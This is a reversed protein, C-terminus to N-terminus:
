IQFVGAIGRQKAKSAYPNVAPFSEALATKTGALKIAPNAGQLLPPLIAL